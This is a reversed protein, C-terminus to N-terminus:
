KAVDKYEIRCTKNEYVGGGKSMANWLSELCLGVDSGHKRILDAASKFVIMEESDKWTLIVVRKM